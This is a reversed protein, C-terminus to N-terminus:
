PTPTLFDPYLYSLYDAFVMMPDINRFDGSTRWLKYNNMEEISAGTDYFAMGSFKINSPGLRTELHLHANVIEKGSLGVSGLEQGCYVKKALEVKPSQGMHAYLSYLSEGPELDYKEILEKPLMDQPTEIIVMNGYPLRDKISAAVYGPLISQVIEGEITLRDRRRYYALDVGHHLDERGVPPFGFPNTVIEWLTSITEDKLPSCMLFPIGTQTPTTTVTPTLTHTTTSTAKNYSNEPLINPTKSPLVLGPYPLQDPIVTVLPNPRQLSNESSTQNYGQCSSLSLIFIFIICIHIIHRMLSIISAVTLISTMFFPNGSSGSRAIIQGCNVDPRLATRSARKCPTCSTGPEVGPAGVQKRLLSKM